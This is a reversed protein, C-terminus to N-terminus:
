SGFVVDRTIGDVVFINMAGNIVLSGVYVGLMWKKHTEIDGRKVASFARWLAFLVFTALLHIPSLGLLPSDPMREHVFYSALSTAAMLVFYLRGLLKHHASGKKSLFILWTGLAFAPLVTVVHFQVAPSAAILPDLTM